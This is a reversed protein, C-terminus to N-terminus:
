KKEAIIKKQLDISMKKYFDFLMSYSGRGKTLSRLRTAYDFMNSMPMNAVVKYGVDDKETLVILGRRSSIDSIVSGVYKEPSYIIVKMIPELITPLSSLIAKKFAISAAIKFANESSDVEHFSGFFLEIKIDVIKAGILVGKKCCSLVSKKIPRIYERPISGSKISNVFKVGKGAKRPFVRLFVHGYQGRGGSQRIYKGESSMCVSSITERYSVRPNKKYLEIKYERRIRELFVDIHLEGMGSVIINGSNKEINLTITPDEISNKKIANFLKEYDNQEKPFVSFSIVPEPFIIEELLFPNEESCLTNGTNSKKFGTFAVIDGSSASNKDEKKNAKYELIRGIKEKSKNNSNYVYDGVNIKGSYIRSFFIRGCYPDNIIKFVLSCFSPSDVDVYGKFKNDLDFFKNKKERPSPLFRIVCDLLNQIGKNKFASGCLVPVVKGLIVKERILLYIEEKSINNSLFKEILADNNGIISEIINNREEENKEIDKKDKLDKVVIKQGNKGRFFIRKKEIVDIIGIFKSNKFIPKQLKIYEVGLKKKIDLCAKKFSAGLRDLKNIFVICPINYRRIQKWVTETQPQVGGVSCLVLCVGDLIRMSREVEATFDVHGPTDILNIKYEKEELKWSITTSASNITIGREQEQDMWDMTAEGDHVEGMKHKQGSYYLIRETLTTKGADIHACIGINRIYELFM